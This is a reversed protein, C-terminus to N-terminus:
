NAECAASQVHGMVEIVVTLGNALTEQVFHTNPM